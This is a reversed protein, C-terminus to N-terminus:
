WRFLAGLRNATKFKTKLYPRKSKRV